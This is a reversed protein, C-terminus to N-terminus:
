KIIKKQKTRSKGNCRHLNESFCSEPSKTALHSPHKMFVINNGNIKTQETSSSQCFSHYVCHKKTINFTTQREM